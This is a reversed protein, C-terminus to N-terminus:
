RGPDFWPLLGDVLDRGYQIAENSAEAETPLDEDLPLDFTRPITQTEVATLTVAAMYGGLTSKNVIVHINFGKYTPM